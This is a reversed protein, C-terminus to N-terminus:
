YEELKIMLEYGLEYFKGFCEKLWAYFRLMGQTADGWSGEYIAKQKLAEEKLKGDILNDYWEYDQFYTMYGVRIMGPLEGRNCFGEDNWNCTPWKTKGDKFHFSECIHDIVKYPIGNESWPEEPVKLLYNFENFAKCLPTEFNFIDTKIKFIEDIENEDILIENELDFIEEDLDGDDSDDVRQVACPICSLGPIEVEYTFLDDDIGSLRNFEDFDTGLPTDYTFLDDNINPFGLGESEEKVVKKKQLFGFIFFM